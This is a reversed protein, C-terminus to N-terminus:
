VEAVPTAVAPAPNREVQAYAAYPAETQVVTSTRRNTINLVSHSTTARRALTAITTPRTTTTMRRTPTTRPSPCITVVSSGITVTEIETTTKEVTRTTAGLITYTKTGESDTVTVTSIVRPNPTAATRRTSTTSVSRRTTYLRFDDRVWGYGNRMTVESGGRNEGHNTAYSKNYERTYMTCYLGQAIGNKLMTYAVFFKCKMYHGSADPHKRNYNTTSTCAAACMEPIFTEHYYKVGIYTERGHEDLPANITSNGFEFPGYYGEIPDPRDLVMNKAGLVVNPFLLAAGVALLASLSGRM